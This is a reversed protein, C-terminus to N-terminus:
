YFSYSGNTITKIQDKSFRSKNGTILDMELCYKQFSEYDEKYSKSGSNVDCYTLYKDDYIRHIMQTSSIKNYYDKIIIEKKRSYSGIQYNM